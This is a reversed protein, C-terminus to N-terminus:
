YRSSVYQSSDKIIINKDEFTVVYDFRSVIDPSLKHCVYFLTMDLSTILTEIQYSTEADLAATVEDLLLIEPMSILVRALCLRQKEGGSVELIEESVISDMGKSKVFSELQVKEAISYVDEDSHKRCVDINNKITDTFIFGSQPMYGIRQYLNRKDITRLEQQNLFINGEYDIQGSLLKLLTSKGIGSSGVVLYKKGIPFRVNVQQLIYQDSGPYKVSVNELLCDQVEELANGADRKVNLLEGFVTDAIQKNGKLYTIQEFLNSIPNFIETSLYISATLLGISFVGNVYFFTAFVISAFTLLLTLFANGPSYYSDLLWWQKKTKNLVNIKNEFSRLFIEEARQLKIYDYGELYMKLGTLYEANRSSMEMRLDKFKKEFLSTYVIIVFSLVMYISAIIWNIYFAVIVTFVSQCLYLVLNFFELIYDNIITPIDETFRSLYFGTEKIHYEQVDKSLITQFFDRKIDYDTQVILESRLIRRMFNIFVYVIIYILLYIVKKVFEDSDFGLATVTNAYDIFREFFIAFCAGFLAQLATFFVVLCFTMKHKNMYYLLLSKKNM